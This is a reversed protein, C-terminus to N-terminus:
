LLQWSDDIYGQLPKFRKKYNMKDCNEIWYGLYVFPLGLSEAKSILAQVAFTGLSRSAHGPHFFTYVASLGDSVVDIVSVAVLEGQLRFEVLATNVTSDVMSQQYRERNAHDMADGSHKWAQYQCFLQFHQEDFDPRIFQIELDANKAYTRRQSRNPRYDAVPIRVSVCARCSGCHPRYVLDGSRRFGMLVASSFVSASVPLNPDLMMSVSAKGPLYPCEHASSMYIAPFEAAQSM